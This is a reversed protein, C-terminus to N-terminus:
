GSHASRSGALHSDLWRRPQKFSDPGVLRDLERRDLLLLLLPVGSVGFRAPVGPTGHVGVQVVKLRGAFEHGLREAVPTVMRGLACWTAWFDLLVPVSCTLQDDLRQPDADVIWALPGGCAACLPVGEAVSRVRNKKGCRRCAVAYTRAV